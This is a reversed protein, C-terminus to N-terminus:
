EELLFATLIKARLSVSENLIYEKDTHCFEGCGGMGCISVIGAAQTYCSDSGGGSEVATLSGLNYKQCTKLLRDFLADTQPNKEMPPRKSIRKVTAETGGIFSTEAIRRVTAEAEELQAHKPVRVDVTLTCKDPIINPLVGGEIINSSYTIGGQRSESTLALIKHAAEVIANKCDFYHIGSHGGVGKIEISFKLIGKRSIVVEDKESTECNIAYPFGKCTDVFYQQEKEGGLINSVEEDSTLILRLHKKYGHEKLAKMALLSIAIGGKCDIVGPAIIRDELRKVADEGFLGKEHVTDTHAMFVCGKEAGENLDVSLFDGCETFETRTVLFGEKQAFESIFTIMEDIAEKDKAKGEFACIDCLFDLYKEEDRKITEFTNLVDMVKVGKKINYISKNKKYLLMDRSIKSNIGYNRSM